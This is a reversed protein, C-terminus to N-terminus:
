RKKNLVEAARKASEMDANVYRYTTSIQSHGLVRGVEAISISQALRSGTTHRLDHFRVGNLGARNLVWRFSRKCNSIIGFVLDNPRQLSKEWLESLTQKLRDTMALWKATMTKTNYARVLITGNALDVDRWELKFIESQRMGTDLATILIPRLHGRRGTCLELAKSEQEETLITQRKEELSTRVLPDGDSFPNSVIWRQQKAVNLMRRLLALERHVSAISLPRKYQTQCGLRFTKYKQIDSYTLSRVLKEGFYESLTNLRARTTRFDRLGSLKKTKDLNYTPPVAYNFRYHEALEKFTLQPVDRERVQGTDIQHLLEKRVDQAQSITDCARKISKRHGDVVFTVRAYWTGIKGCTPCKPKAKNIKQGTATCGCNLKLYINGTRSRPM